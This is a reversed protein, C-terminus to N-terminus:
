RFTVKTIRARFFEGSDQRDTGRWWGARVVAPLTVGADTREGDVTVGFPYRDFPRGDPNGWRQMLVSRLQGAPGLHLEVREEQEGSGWSAVATDPRDGGIWTAGGFATPILAIESALRGAASRAMDPGDTSVVSLLDLLRWRMEGTGGSLRDYGMVPIGFLRANAAWIYGRPQAVVQTATFPRWAGIKIHGVMSVEVSQWLPTGPAIAHALYRRVPEPLGAVVAPNFVTPHTTPACLEAWDKRVRRAAWPPVSVTPLAAPASMSRTVSTPAQDTGSAELRPPPAPDARAALQHSGTAAPPHGAPEPRVVAAPHRRHGIRQAGRREAEARERIGRLMRRMMPFDGFEMLPLWLVTSARRWDYVARLRTVLRTGGDPLPVLRWAWTSSPTRWMMWRPTEFSDVTFASTVSPTPAMPLWRGVQLDQLEPVIERASPHALNDLLDDSYWGARLCGVQVLWPWVEEPPAAITIARTSRYQARPFLDDGPMPDAVEAPTAGWTLHWGRLLPATLFRPLDAVVDRVQRALDAPTPRPRAWRPPDPTTRSPPGRTPETRIPIM